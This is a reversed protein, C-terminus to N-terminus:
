SATGNKIREYKKGRKELTFNNLVVGYPIKEYEFYCAMDGETYKRSGGNDHVTMSLPDDGRELADKIEKARIREYPQQAATRKKDFINMQSSGKRTYVTEHKM